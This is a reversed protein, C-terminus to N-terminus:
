QLNESSPSRDESPLLKIEDKNEHATESPCGEIEIKFPMFDEIARLAEPKWIIRVPVLEELMEKAHERERSIIRKVDTQLKRVQVSRTQEMVRRKESLNKRVNDFFKPTTAAKLSILPM